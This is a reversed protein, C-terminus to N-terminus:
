GEIVTSTMLKINTILNIDHDPYERMFIDFIKTGSDTIVMVDLDVSEKGEKRNWWFIHYAKKM